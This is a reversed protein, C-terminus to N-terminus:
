QLASIRAMIPCRSNRFHVCFGIPRSRGREGSATMSTAPGAVTAAAERPELRPRHRGARACFKDATFDQVSQVADRAAIRGRVSTQNNPLRCAPPCHVLGSDAWFVTLRIANLIFLFDRPARVEGMKAVQSLTEM